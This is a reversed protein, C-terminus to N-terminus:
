HCFLRLIEARNDDVKQIVQGNLYMTKSNQRIEPLNLWFYNQGSICFNDSLMHSSKDIHTLDLYFFKYDYQTMKGSSVSSKEEYFDLDKLEYLNITNVPLSLLQSVSKLTEPMDLQSKQKLYPLMFCDWESDKVVLLRFDESGQNNLCKRFCVILSVNKEINLSKANIADLLNEANFRKKKNYIQYIMWCFMSVIALCIIGKIQLPTLYDGFSKYTEVTALTILLTVIIGIYSVLDFNYKPFNKEIINKLVAEEIILKKFRM